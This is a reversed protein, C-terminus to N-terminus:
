YSQTWKKSVSQSYASSGRTPRGTVLAGHLHPYYGLSEDLVDSLVDSLDGIGGYFMGPVHHLSMISFLNKRHEFTCCVSYTRVASPKVWVSLLCSKYGSDRTRSEGLVKSSFSGYVTLLSQGKFRGLDNSITIIIFM